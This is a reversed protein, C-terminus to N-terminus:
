IDLKIKRCSIQRRILIQDRITIPIGVGDQPIEHRGMDVLSFSDGSLYQHVHGECVMAMDVLSKQSNIKQSTHEDIGIDHDSNHEFGAPTEILAIRPAHAVKKLLVEWAKRDNPSIEGSSFLVIPGKKNM